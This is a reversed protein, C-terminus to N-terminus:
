GDDEDAPLVYRPRQGHLERDPIVFQRVIARITPVLQRPILMPELDLARALELLSSVRLDVAGSEIRSLRGQAIGVREGLERQTLSKRTRATKLSDAIPKISERMPEDM